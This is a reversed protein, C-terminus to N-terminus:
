ESQHWREHADKAFAFVDAGCIACVLAHSNIEDGEEYTDDPGSENDNTEDHNDLDNYDDYTTTDKENSKQVIENPLNEEDIKYVKKHEHTRRQINPSPKVEIIEFEDLEDVEIAQTASSGTKGKIDVLARKRKKSSKTTQNAWNNLVSPPPPFKTLDTVTINIRHLATISDFNARGRV